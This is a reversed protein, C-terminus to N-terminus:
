KNGPHLTEGASRHWWLRGLMWACFALVILQLPAWISQWFTPEAASCISQGAINVQNWISWIHVVAFPILLILPISLWRLIKHIDAFSRTLRLSLGAGVVFPTIGLLLRHLEDGDPGCGINRLAALWVFYAYLLMWGVLASALRLFVEPLRM